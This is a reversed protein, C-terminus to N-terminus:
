ALVLLQTKTEDPLDKSRSGKQRRLGVQEQLVVLDMALHVKWGGCRAEKM